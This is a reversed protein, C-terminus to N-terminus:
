DHMSVEAIWDLVEPVDIRTHYTIGACNPNAAYSHVALVINTQGLLVPGGSDGFSIGGKGHGPNASCRLFEDSWAFDGSVTKAGAYNRMIFEPTHSASRSQLGYGVLTVDTKKPLTDVFGASPLQAYTNVVSSPVPEKLIILALDRHLFEPLGKKGAVNIKYDPNPYANGEYTSTVGEIQLQNDQLSWSLPGRDFCVLASETACGHAATLVATPSLLIGSSISVPIKNGSEDLNFFVVIGVFSHTNDPQSNGTIAYVTTTSLSIVILLSLIATIKVSKSSM